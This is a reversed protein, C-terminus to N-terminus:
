SSGCINYFILFGRLAVDMESPRLETSTEDKLELCSFDQETSIRESISMQSLRTLWRSSLYMKERKWTKLWICIQCCDIHKMITWKSLITGCEFGFVSPSLCLNSVTSIIFFINELSFAFSNSVKWLNCRNTKEINVKESSYSIPISFHM